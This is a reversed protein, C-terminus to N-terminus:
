PAQYYTAYWSFATNATAAPSVFTTATGTQFSKVCGSAPSGWNAVWDYNVRATAVLSFKLAFSNFNTATTVGNTIATSTADQSANFGLTCVYNYWGQPPAPITLTTQTNVAATATIPTVTYYPTLMQVNVVGAAGGFNQAHISGATLLALLLLTFLKRM